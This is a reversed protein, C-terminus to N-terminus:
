RGALTPDGGGAGKNVAGKAAPAFSPSVVPGSPRAAWTGYISFSGAATAYAYIGAGWPDTAPCTAPAGGRCVNRNATVNSEFSEFACFHGPAANPTTSTGSCGAPVPDGLKIYHPTLATPFTAGWSISASGALAGPTSASGAVVYTGRYLAQVPAYRADSEAKKYYGNLKSDTASGAASTAASQAAAAAAAADAKSAYAADSQKKTYFTKAALPKLQKKWIKKWSTAAAQSVEAGAPTVAMLGGGVLVGLVAAVLLQRVSRRSSM